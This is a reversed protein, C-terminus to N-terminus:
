EEDRRRRVLRLSRNAPAAIWFTILAALLYISRVALLRWGAWTGRVDIIGAVGYLLMAAAVPLVSDALGAGRRLRRWLDSIIVHVLLLISFAYAPVFALFTAKSLTHESAWQTYITGEVGGMLLLVLFAILSLGGGGAVLLSVVRRRWLVEAAFALLAVIQGVLCFQEIYFFTRDLTAFVGIQTYHFFFYALLRLGAIFWLLAAFNWFWGAARWFFQPNPQRLLGQTAAWSIQAVTWCLFVNYLVAYNM